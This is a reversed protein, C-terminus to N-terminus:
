MRDPATLGLLALGNALVLQTARAVALRAREVEPAEGLVHCHHYWL